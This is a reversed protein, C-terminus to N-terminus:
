VNGAKQKVNAELSKQKDTLSDIELQLKKSRIAIDPDLDYSRSARDVAAFVAQLSYYDKQTVPDFKHNHCRACGVTLSTFTNMTSAVMDDRDLNRVRKKEMTNNKVEIHGVWDFPGAAIFGLAVIGDTTDAYLVDGALQEKVFRDYPKDENFARIVYDRYPWSNARLKDKDYGMTEGYHVV